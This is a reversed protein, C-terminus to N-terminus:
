AGPSLAELLRGHFGSFNSGSLGLVVDGEGARASIHQVIEDVSPLLHAEVGRGNVGAVVANLDITAADGPRHNKRWPASLLVVDAEDFAEVYADQFIAMRSTNSKAEFAVWLRAEPYRRRFAAITVRVATPHHAFDDYVRVGRVQGKLEQRKRVSKFKPVAARITEVDLGEGLALAMAGMLNRVNHDGPVSLEFVGLPEGHLELAVRVGGVHHEVSTPRLECGEAFGFRHVPCSANAAAAAARPDDGNVWLQGDQPPLMRAFRAFVGSIVEVDPYIDAHDYEINNITARLPEYHWFKPVKDFWASDYEDGEVIFAPGQGLKFTSTFNGTVGGIMFSPDQGAYELMWALMASTTTKGHTGTVVLPRKGSLFFARLTEPFSICPLGRAHAEVSEPNDPRAVNGVVVLDPGWDLHEPKYGEMVEVGREALWTSMPPYAGRDSGRVDHGRAQLMGALAGMGTGCVGILHIRHASAPLTPMDRRWSATM